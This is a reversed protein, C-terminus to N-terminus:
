STSISSRYAAATREAMLQTTFLQAREVGRAGLESRLVADNLVVELKVALSDASGPEFYRAVDGGVEPMSSARAIVTPAGSAMAELPTMGFGEYRSTQVLLTCNAYASRLQVDNLPHWEFLSTVGYRDLLEKETRDFPPGVVVVKCSLSRRQLEAIAAPLIQFDKYGLRKGVYLIYEKPLSACPSLGPQFESGVAAPVVIVRGRPTGLHYELDLRTAESICIVLDSRKIYEAKALHSGTFSETGAFKEPIMDYVTTVRLADGVNGLFRKSYYTHHIVNSNAPVRLGRLMWPAYLVERPVWSPPQKLSRDPLDYSAYTNNVWRFPTLAEVGLSADSDFGRILDTFLRSIGGTRQRLFTQPDFAVKM